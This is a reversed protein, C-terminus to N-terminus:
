HRLQKWRSTQTNVSPSLSLTLSIILDAFYDQDCYMLNWHKEDSGSIGSSFSM